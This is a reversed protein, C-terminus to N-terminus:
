YISNCDHVKISSIFNDKKQKNSSTIKQKLNHTVLMLKKKVQAKEYRFTYVASSKVACSEKFCPSLVKMLSELPYRGEGFTLFWQGLSMM